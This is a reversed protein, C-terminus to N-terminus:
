GERGILGDKLGPSSQGHFRGMYDIQPERGHRPKAQGVRRLRRTFHFLHEGFLMIGPCFRDEGGALGGHLQPQLHHTGAPALIRIDGEVIGKDVATPANRLRRIFADLGIALSQCAM